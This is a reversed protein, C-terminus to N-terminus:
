FLIQERWEDNKIESNCKECYTMCKRIFYDEVNKQEKSNIHDYLLSKNIEISCIKCFMIKDLSRFYTEGIDHTSNQIFYLLDSTFSNQMESNNISDSCSVDFKEKTLKKAFIIQWFNLKKQLKSIM